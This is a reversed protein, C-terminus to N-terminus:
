PGQDDLPPAWLSLFVSVQFIQKGWGLLAKEEELFLTSHELCICSGGSVPFVIM